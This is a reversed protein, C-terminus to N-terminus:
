TKQCDAFAQPLDDPKVTWDLFCHDETGDPNTRVAFWTCLELGSIRGEADLGAGGAFPFDAPHDATYVVNWQYLDFVAGETEVTQSHEFQTITYGTLTIGDAQLIDIKERARAELIAAYPAYAASDVTTKTRYANRLLWYLRSDSVTITELGGSTPYYKVEVLDEQLDAALWYRDGNVLYLETHYILAVQTPETEHLAAQNMSFVLDVLPINHSGVHDKVDDLKLLAMRTSVTVPKPETERELIVPEHPERIVPADEKCATLTLLLLILLLYKM